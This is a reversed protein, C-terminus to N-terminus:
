VMFSYKGFQIEVGLNQKVFDMERFAGKHLEKPNYGEVYYETPYECAVRVSAWGNKEFHYKFQTNLAIPSYLVDGPMTKERSVKNKCSAADIMRIYAHIEELLSPYKKSVVREGDNFPYVGAIRM